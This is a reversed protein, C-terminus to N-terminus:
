GLLFASALALAALLMCVAWIWWGRRAQKPTIPHM